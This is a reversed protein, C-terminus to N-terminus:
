HFDRLAQCLVSIHNSIRTRMFATEDPNQTAHHDMLPEFVRELEPRDFSKLLSLLNAVQVPM